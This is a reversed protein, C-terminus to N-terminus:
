WERPHHEDYYCVRRIVEPMVDAELMQHIVLEQGINQGKENGQVGGAGGGPM